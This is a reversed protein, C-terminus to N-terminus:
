DWSKKAVFECAKKIKDKGHDYIMKAVQKSEYFEWVGDSCVLVFDDKEDIKHCTITPECTVGVSNAILDGISRSMALGPFPRNKVFVRHPVDGPLLKVDGGNAKIRKMEEPLNPKHDKSLDKVMQKNNKTGLIARSDGACATWIEKKGKDIISVTATTGSLMCDFNDTCEKTLDEHTEVFAM